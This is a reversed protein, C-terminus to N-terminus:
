VNPSYRNFSIYGVGGKNLRFVNDVFPDHLSERTSQTLLTDMLTGQPVM